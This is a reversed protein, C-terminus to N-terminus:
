CLRVLTGSRQGRRTAHSSPRQPTIFEGDSRKREAAAKSEGRLRARQARVAQAGNTTAPPETEANARCLLM